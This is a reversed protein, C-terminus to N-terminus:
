SGIPVPGADEPSAMRGLRVSVSSLRPASEAGKGGGEWSAGETGLLGNFSRKGLGSSDALHRGEGAAV